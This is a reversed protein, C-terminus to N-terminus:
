FNFYIFPSYGKNMIFSISIVTGTLILIIYGVNWLINGLESGNKRNQFKYEMKRFLPAVGLIAMLYYVINQKLYALVQSDMLSRSGIGMMGKLYAFFDGLSEARFLVWAVTVILMTYIHGIAGRCKDPINWLKELSIIAFYFLGWLLFTWNAGHWIGTLLWVIFLNLVTRGKGRKSGGLPIYVYDRFWSSLSIHWRRWFETVSGAIYPYNFNEWFKFGFIKGLGIAMDSYGSFDFYIQLAYSIAGLWAMFISGEFKGRIILEFAGDAVIAMNNAIIVKKILGLLFRNIGEFFLEKNEKRNRIQDAVTIYRVIPGAILQPFFSVYLGVYLPNKEAKVEGRYVDIVYSLAQFTFFSIGIPLAIGGGHWLSINTFKEIESFIFTAYKFWILISVNVSITVILICVKIWKASRVYANEVAMGALYDFMIVGMMLFVYVPEGWAYFILSIILLWINKLAVNKKLLVYYVSIAIPLFAFLFIESPFLM